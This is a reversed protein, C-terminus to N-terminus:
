FGGKEAGFGECGKEAFVNPGAKRRKMAEFLEV